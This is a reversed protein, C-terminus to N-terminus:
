RNARENYQEQQHGLEDCEDATLPEGDQVAFEIADTLQELPVTFSRVVRWPGADIGIRTGEVSLAWHQEDYTSQLVEISVTRRM